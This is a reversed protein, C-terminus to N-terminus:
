PANPRDLALPGHLYVPYTHAKRTRRPAVASDVGPQALLRLLQGGERTWPKRPHPRAAVVDAFKNVIATGNGAHLVDREAVDVREPAVDIDAEELSGRQLVRVTQEFACASSHPM